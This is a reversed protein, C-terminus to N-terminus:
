CKRDVAKKMEMKLVKQSMTTKITEEKMVRKMVIKMYATSGTLM